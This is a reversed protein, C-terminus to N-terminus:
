SNRWVPVRGPSRSRRTTEARIRQKQSALRGFEHFRHEDRCRPQVFHNRWASVGLASACASSFGSLNNKGDLWACHGAILNADEALARGLASPPRLAALSDAIGSSALHSKLIEAVGGCFPGTYLSSFDAGKLPRCVADLISQSRTLTEQVEQAVGRAMTEARRQADWLDHMQRQLASMADFEAIGKVMRDLEAQQRSIRDVLEATAPRTLQAAHAAIGGQIEALSYAPRAAQELWTRMGVPSEHCVSRALDALKM